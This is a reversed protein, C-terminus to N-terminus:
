RDENAKKWDTEFDDMLTGLVRRAKDKADVSADFGGYSGRTWINGSTFYGPEMFVGRICSFELDYVTFANGNELAGFRVYVRSYLKDSASLCGEDTSFATDTYAKLKTDADVVKVGINSLRSVVWGRIDDKTITDNLPSPVDAVVVSVVRYGTLNEWEGKRVYGVPLSPGAADGEMFTGAM